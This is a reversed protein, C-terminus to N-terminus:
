DTMQMQKIAGVGNVATHLQTPSGYYNISGVGNVAANLVHAARVNVAGTGNVAVTVNNAEVDAFDVNGAGNLNVNLEDLKGKAKINGTGSISVSSTGGAYGQISVDGAGGLVFSKMQPVTITIKVAKNDWGQWWHDKRDIILTSGNVETSLEALVKPEAEITLSQKPGVGIEIKAAGRVEVSDFASVKRASKEMAEPQALASGAALVIAAAILGDLKMRM